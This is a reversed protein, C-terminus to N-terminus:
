RGNAPQWRLLAILESLDDETPVLRGRNIRRLTRVTGDVEGDYQDNGFLDFEPRTAYPEHPPIYHLM